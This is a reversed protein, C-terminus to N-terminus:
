SMGETAFTKGPIDAEVLAAGETMVLKTAPDKVPEAASCDIKLRNAGDIVRQVERVIELYRYPARSFGVLHLKLVMKGIISGFYISVELRQQGCLFGSM